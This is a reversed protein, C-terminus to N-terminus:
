RRSTRGALRLLAMLLVGLLLGLVFLLQSEPDRTLRERLSAPPAPRAPRAPDPQAHPQAAPKRTPVLFEAIRAADTQSVGLQPMQARPDDFRPDIVKQEVWARARAQPAAALVRARAARGAVLNPEESRDLAALQQAYSPDNLRASLRQELAPPELPPGMRGGAGLVVHCGLCGLSEFLQQGRLPQALGPGTYPADAPAASLQYLWSTEGEGLLPLFYLGDAAAALSVLPRAQEGLWELVKHPPATVRREALDYGFRVIGNIKSTRPERGMEGLMAVYFSGRHAEPVYSAGPGAYALQVPSLAPSFVVDAAAMLSADFGNWLYDRGREVRVFRDILQGNDTVFLQGDVAVIGFPNRLGSAWVAAAGPTAASPDHGRPRGDLDLRLVKGLTSSPDRATQPREGDGVSVYLHGDMVACGGVQHAVASMEEELFPAIVAHALAADGFRRPQSGFRVIRNRVLGSADLYGVTAFVYGHEPDLCLGAHGLQGSMARPSDDGRNPVFGQAFVAVSGDNRVVKIRGALESVFLRVDHPEAGPEPVAAVATPHEFGGAHRELTYGAEVGWQARFDVEAAGAEPQARAGSALCCLALLGCPVAVARATTEDFM